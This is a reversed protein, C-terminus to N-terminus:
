ASPGPSVLLFALCLANLVALRLVLAPIGFLPIILGAALVVGAFSGLLDVGYGLGPHPRERLLGDNAAVFLYGSLAGFGLLLAFPLAKGGAGSLSLSTIVLLLVFLGQVAALERGRRRMARGALAGAVLGTMFAALLLPIMGYVFGFRAQFAIFLALEVAMSTFGMVAVPVLFRVSSRKKILALGILLLAFLALPADLMWAPRIRGAARLLRSEAGRFQGAWLVSHFYYSVPVLDRNIRAGPASIKGALYEVRAPDIRAPLMGPAVSRLDLGLRGIAASLRAVDLTLPADSALFVCNAGPVALVEAFVTRLTAALSSLFQGLDESIYNEAAPVVFSLVGGPSLKARVERFFELTYYRNIQATAPEPLNLLIADYLEVSGALFSRGDRFVIRVRPDDLAARDPTALHRKALRIVAPDLEVCDLRVGPHKLAEAAGGSAGGGVLLVRRPGERQLLAFHVAEEAAGIDPHSSLVLGNDFFTVQEETRVVQLKGYRTDDAEVLGLPTWAAKQARLDFLAVAAALVVAAALLYRWRGPKMTAVALLAAAGIVAAGQWNSSRPILGFHVVLGAAAAGASELIYVGAVDGNMLRANVVFGHGLPLSIMLSLVFAFGLAPGLGTLEAPLLGMLKHSFRLTALGAFFLVVALAYIGALTRRAAAPRGGPRVLSGIGGWFLWSGLFLGFTLESGMFEAAFERLLYIQFATALFGLLFPPLRGSLGLDGPDFDRM